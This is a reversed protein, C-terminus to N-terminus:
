IKIGKERLAEAFVRVRGHYLKEGRDFVYGTDPSLSFKSLSSAFNEALAKAAEKNKASKGKKSLDASLTTVSFITKKAADDILQAYLYRNSVHLYIRKRDSRNGAQIKARVRRKRRERLTNLRTIASM